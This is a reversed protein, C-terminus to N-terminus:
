REHAPRRRLENRGFGRGPPTIRATELLEYRSADDTGRKFCAIRRLIPRINPQRTSGGRFEEVRITAFRLVLSRRVSRAASEAAEAAALM